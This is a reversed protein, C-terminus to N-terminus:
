AQKRKAGTQFVQRILALYKESLPIVVLLAHVQKSQLAQQINDPMLDTFRVKARPLDYEHNLTGVIPGNVDAGVVGVTKGKLGDIGEIGAGPPSILLVVLHTVLVVTRAASLGNVDARVIALDVKGDAFAKAAESGSGSDVVKLRVDSKTSALRSAVASILRVAEGDASGAAVALTTPQTFYRYGFLGAGTAIVILGILVIRVM